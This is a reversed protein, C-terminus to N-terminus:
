EYPNPPMVITAAPIARPAPARQKPKHKGVMAVEIEGPSSPTVEVLRDLHTESRVLVSVAGTRPRPVSLTGEPLERGDVVLRAGEPVRLIVEDGVAADSAVRASAGVDNALAVVSSVTSPTVVAANAADALVLEQRAARREKRANRASHVYSLVGLGLVLGVLVAAVATTMSVGGPREPRVHHRLKGAQTPGAPEITARPDASAPKPEPKSIPLVSSREGLERGCREQLLLSIQPAGLPPGSAALWGELAQRLQLATAYRAEPATSMARMVIEELARPYGRVISSPRECKGIIIASMVQPDHDGRFPRQGTTTEYLVSGLAFVDSRRDVGGGVLQEPSMYALKGKVQGAITMHSKGLAKAVGFDTVKVRGDLTLLVNHPSVDRHVVALPAGDDGRLEHACHLGACTEALIKVAHRIPLAVSPADDRANPDPRLMHILSSGDVWEMVLSLIGDLEVLEFTRAVNEHRIRSAIRAEDFFMDRFASNDALHPRLMKLAFIAGTELHRAAWVHAMGGSGVPVLLEYSGVIRGPHFDHEDPHASGM